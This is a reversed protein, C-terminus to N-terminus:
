EISLRLSLKRRRPSFFSDARALLILSRAANHTRAHHSCFSGFIFFSVACGAFGGAVGSRWLYDFSRKQRRLAEDAARPSDRQAVASM